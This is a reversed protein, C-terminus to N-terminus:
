VSGKLERKSEWLFFYMIIKLIGRCVNLSLVSIKIKVMLYSRLSEKSYHDIVHVEIILM